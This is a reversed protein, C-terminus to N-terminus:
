IMEKIYLIDKFVKIFELDPHGNLFTSVIRGVIDKQEKLDVDQTIYYIM